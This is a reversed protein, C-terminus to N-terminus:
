HTVNITKWFAKSITSVVVSLPIRMTSYPGVGFRIILMICDRRPFWCCLLGYQRDTVGKGIQWRWAQRDGRQRNTVEKGIQWRKAQRDGLKEMLVPIFCDQWNEVRIKESIISQIIHVYGCILRCAYYHPNTHRVYGRLWVPELREQIKLTPIAKGQLCTPDIYHTKRVHSYFCACWCYTDSM